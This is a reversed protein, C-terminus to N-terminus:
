ASLMRALPRHDSSEFYSVKIGSEAFLQLDLYNRGSPGSLYETAGFRQCIEVLRQTGVAETPFDSEVKVEIKLIELTRRIIASNTQSLSECILDNFVELKKTSSNANVIKMWDGAARLYRKSVIPSKGQEVSMTFWKDDLRFRNQFGGKEFQCNEMIVFINAQAAKEFYAAWPVFNPQHITCIVPRDYRCNKRSTAFYARDFFVM